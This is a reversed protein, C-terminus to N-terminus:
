EPLGAKRVGELLHEAAVDGWGGRRMRAVSFDPKLRLVEAAAERAEETRGLQAYCAALRTIVWYGPPRRHWFADIAEEYRRALYLATGLDVWYWEPHRPNLRMADRICDIGEEARGLAALSLGFTSLANADSPNLLIAQQYHYAEAKLDGRAGQIMGLLWQCRGDGDDLSVARSAMRMASELVQPPASDYNHIVVDAFARYALALPYAPDLELARDFFECALANDDPAYGRLHHIGRLLFEYAASDPRHARHIISSEVQSYLRAIVARTISEPMTAIERHAAEFVEGWFQARSAADVLRMTLRIREGHLQLSGQVLYTVGLRRGLEALDSSTESIAASSQRDIVALLKFRGLGTIVDEALGACLFDLSSDGSLNALPLVAISTRLGGTAPSERVLPAPAPSLSALGRGTLIDRYLSETDAEPTVGLEQQLKAQCQRYCRLADSRQSSGAYLRMVARCVPESLPDRAMILRGLRMIEPGAPTKADNAVRELLRLALGAQQEREARLWDEAGAFDFGDLLEGRYLAAFQESDADEPMTAFYQADVAIIALDIAVTERDARIFDPSAAASRLAQRMGALSQKLSDRAQNPPRDSWILAALKERQQARPATVALYALLLRDKRTPLAIEAGDPGSLHFGGLLALRYVPSVASRAGAMRELGSIM